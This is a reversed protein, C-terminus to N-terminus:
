KFYKKWLWYGAAAAMGYKAIVPVGPLVNPLFDPLDGLGGLGPQYMGLGGYYDPGSLYSSLYSPGRPALAPEFVSMRQSPM